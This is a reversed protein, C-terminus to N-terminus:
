PVPHVSTRVEAYQGAAYRGAEPVWVQVPGRPSEVTLQGTPSVARIAGRVTAYDGPEAMVAAAPTDTEGPPTTGAPAAELRQVRIRVRVRDGAKFGTGPVAAWLTLLGRESDITVLGAPDVRSVTGQLETEDVPGRAVLLPAPTTIQEIEAPPALEGRLTVTQWLRLGVLQDPTVKVRITEGGRRLTVVNTREDWTWVEGTFTQGPATAATRGTPSACGAVLPAGVLLTAFVFRVTRRRM